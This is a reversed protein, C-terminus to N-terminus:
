EQHHKPLGPVADSPATILHWAERYIEFRAGRQKGEAGPCLVLASTSQILHVPIIYWVDHPGIYAALFDIDQETYYRHTYPQAGSGLNFYYGSRRATFAAKVQVRLLRGGIEVVFDYPYSDGYPKSVALGHSAATLVFVMEALEGKRKPDRVLRAAQARRNRVPCDSSFECPDDMTNAAFFTERSTIPSRRRSSRPQAAFLLLRPPNRAEKIARQIKLIALEVPTVPCAKSFYKPLRILPNPLFPGNVPSSLIKKFRGPSPKQCSNERFPVPIPITKQHAAGESRDAGSWGPARALDLGAL